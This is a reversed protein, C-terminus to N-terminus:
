NSVRLANVSQEIATKTEELIESPDAELNVKQLSQLPDLIKKIYDLVEHNEHVKTLLQDLNEQPITLGKAPNLIAAKMKESLENLHNILNQNPQM